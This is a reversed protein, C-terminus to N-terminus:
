FGHFSDIKVSTRVLHCESRRENFFGQKHNEGLRRADLKEYIAAAEPLRSQHREDAWRANLSKDIATATLIVLTLFPISFTLLRMFYPLLQTVFLVDYALPASRYLLKISESKM